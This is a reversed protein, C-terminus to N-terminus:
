AYVAEEMVRPKIIPKLADPTVLDVKAGVKKTLYNELKIFEFLGVPKDFEVLMDVDSKKTPEGRVYSGFIGINKVKFNEKLRPLERKLIKLIEEKSKM